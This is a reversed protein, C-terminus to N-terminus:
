QAIPEKMKRPLKTLPAFDHGVRMDKGLIKQFMEDAVRTALVYDNQWQYITPLIVTLAYSEPSVRTFVITMSMTLFRYATDSNEVLV